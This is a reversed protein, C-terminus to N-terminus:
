LSEFLCLTHLYNHSFDCEIFIKSLLQVKDYFTADPFSIEGHVVLPKCIQYRDM